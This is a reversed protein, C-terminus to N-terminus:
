AAGAGSLMGGPRMEQHIMQIVTSQVKNDLMAGFQELGQNNGSGGSTSNGGGKGVNFVMQPNYHVNGGAGGRVGLKGSADRALPMIAEPGSEGMQGFSGGSAFRFMTPRDVITNVYRHLDSSAFVNGKANKGVGPIAGEPAPSGGPVLNGLSALLPRIAYLKLAETLIAQIFGKWDGKGKVVFTTITSEFSSFTSQMFSKANAGWNNADEQYKSFFDKIGTLASAHARGLDYVSAAVRKQAEVVEQIPKIGTKLQDYYSKIGAEAIKRDRETLDIQEGLAKNMSVEDNMAKLRKQLVTDDLGGDQKGGVTVQLPKKQGFAGFSSDFSRQSDDGDSAGRAAGRGALLAERIRDKNVDVAGSLSEFQNGAPLNFKQALTKRDEGAAPKNMTDVAAKFIGSGVGNFNEPIHDHDTLVDKWELYKNKVSEMIDGWHQWAEYAAVTAVTIAVVAISIPNGVFLFTFAVGVLRVAAALAIAAPTYAIFDAVVLRTVPDLDTFGKRLTDIVESVHTNFRIYGPTLTDGLAKASEDIAKNLQAQSEQWSNNASALRKAAETANGEKDAAKDLNTHYKAFDAALFGGRELERLTLNFGKLFSDANQASTGKLITQLKAVASIIDTEILKKTDSASLKFAKALEDLLFGNDHAAKIMIESVRTFSLVAIQARGGLDTFTASLALVQEESLKFISADRALVEAVNLFQEGSGRTTASLREFAKGFEGVNGVGRGMLELVHTLSNALETTSIRTVTSIDAIERVFDGIGGEGVGAKLGIQAIKLLEPGLNTTKATAEDISEGFHKLEEGTKDATRGLQLLEQEYASSAELAKKIIESSAFAGLFVEAADKLTSVGEKIGSIAEKIKAGAGGADDGTAKFDNGIKKLESSIENRLKMLVEVTNDESM